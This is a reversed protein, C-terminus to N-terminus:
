ILVCMLCVRFIKRLLGLVQYPVILPSCAPRDLTRSGAPDSTNWREHANMVTHRRRLRSSWIYQCGEARLLAASAGPRDSMEM